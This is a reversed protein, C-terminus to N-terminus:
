TVEPIPNGDADIDPVLTGERGDMIAVADLGVSPKPQVGIIKNGEIALGLIKPQVKKSELRTLRKCERDRAKSLPM